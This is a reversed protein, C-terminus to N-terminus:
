FWRFRASPQKFGEILWIDHRPIGIATAFSNGNPELSFGTVTARQPLNLSIVKREGGSQIDFTVLQWTGEPARRVAYLSSGDLSFGFAEPPAGSLVKQVKGDEAHTLRLAKDAVHAIWEGTPSWATHDGGGPTGEALRVPQGGGSPVKVLEWNKGHLRQYAIWKGNPSWAPSHQDLSEGDVPM